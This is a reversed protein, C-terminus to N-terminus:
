EWVILDSVNMRDIWYDTHKDLQEACKAYIELPGGFPDAIEGGDPSIMHVKGTASPWQSVIVHKHRSGMTLILDAQDIMELTLQNSHHKELSSGYKKIAQQAGQSAPEGGYAAVGASMAFIPLDKAGFQRSFKEAIKRNMMAQAMPSRCTNGTCVFLVTWRSLTRLYEAPLAGERTVTGRSEEFDVITPVTAISATGDDIALTYSRADIDPLRRALGGKEDSAPLAVIPGALLKSMQELVPHSPQSVRYKGNELQLSASITPELCSLTSLGDTNKLDFAIPGPWVKTAFRRVAAPVSPFYDYVEPASRFLLIPTQGTKQRAIHTLQTMGGLHIGAAVLLYSCDGPVAVVHGEAVAQVALHVVDRPDSSSKWDIVKSMGM